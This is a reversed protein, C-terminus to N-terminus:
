KVQRKLEEIQKRTKEIEKPMRRPKYGRELLKIFDALRYELGKIKEEVTEPANKFDWFGDPFLTEAVKDVAKKRSRKSVYGNPSLTSHDISPISKNTKMSKTYWVM